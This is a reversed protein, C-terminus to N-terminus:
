KFKSNQEIIKNLIEINKIKVNREFASIHLLNHIDSGVFDIINDALLKELNKRIHVGYYDTTSLLNAQFLCGRKKLEIYEKKSLFLYREPHALIPTYGNVKMEYIIDFLGIPKSIFSMEFLVFNDKLCLIKKCRSKDILSEDVMYETAYDLINKDDLNDLLKYYSNEISERNNDYLGKYTHPTGIIKGFGLKKMEQILVLSEKVDKAGDDIGPLVHSHIDVFGNPILEKLTPKSKFMNFM